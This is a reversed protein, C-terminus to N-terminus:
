KVSRCRMNSLHWWRFNTKLLLAKPIERFRYRMVRPKREAMSHSKHSTRGIMKGM